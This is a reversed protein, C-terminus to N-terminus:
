VLLDLVGPRAASRTLDPAAATRPMPGTSDADGRPSRRGAGAGVGDGQAGASGRWGDNGPQTDRGLSLDANLGSGALDRRLDALSTRLAERSQDTAGLLEIRVADPTIHAIVRVPGFHEPDVAISMVHEGTGLGRLTMLRAGLQDALPAPQATAPAAPASVAPAATTASTSTVAGAALVQPGATPSDDAAPTATKATSTGAM